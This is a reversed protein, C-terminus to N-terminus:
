LPRHVGFQARLAKVGAAHERSVVEASMGLRAAIQELTPAEASYYLGLIRTQLPSLRRFHGQRLKQLVRRGDIGEVPMQVPQWLMVTPRRLWDEREERARGWEVIENLSEHQAEIWNKRRLGDKIAGRIRHKAYAAFPAHGNTEPRYRIAAQMLGMRGLAILDDIEFASPCGALVAWAIPEVLHLHGLVLRDRRALAQAQRASPPRRRTRKQV